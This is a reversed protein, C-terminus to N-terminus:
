PEVKGNEEQYDKIEKARIRKNIYLVEYLKNIKEDMLLIKKHIVEVCDILKKELDSPM